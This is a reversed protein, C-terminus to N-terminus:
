ARDEAQPTPPLSSRPRRLSPLATGSALYVLGGSLSAGLLVAFWLLGFALAADHGVAHRELFWVYGMERIGLGALSVPVASLVTVLPHFVFYYRWDLELGMSRGLLILALVQVVHFLLSVWAARLLLHRDSWFPGLDNEVLRRIRNKPSLLLKVMPPILWWGFLLGAGSAVTFVVLALPLGFTGFGAMATVAVAVLMALGSLRDFLVTNFAVMRRGDSQALYLSRVVDGGLTSPGFLNFFMGIFYYRTVELLSDGFDVSRSIFFWRYATLTQGLLYIALVACISVLDTKALVRVFEPGDVQRALIWLAGASVALKGFQGARRRWASAAKGDNNSDSQKVVISESHHITPESHHTRPPRM